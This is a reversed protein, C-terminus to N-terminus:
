KLAKDCRIFAVRLIFSNYFNSDSRENTREGNRNYKWPVILAAFIADENIEYRSYDTSSMLQKAVM